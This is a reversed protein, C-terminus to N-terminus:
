FGAELGFGFAELKQLVWLEPGLIGGGLGFQGFQELEM